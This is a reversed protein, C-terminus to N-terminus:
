LKKQRVGKRGFQDAMHGSTIAGIVASVNVLSDFLSFEVMSFELDKSISITSQVPATYSMCSGFEYSGVVVALTSVFICTISEKGRSKEKSSQEDSIWTKEIFPEGLEALTRSQM